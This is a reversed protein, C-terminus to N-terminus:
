RWSKGEALRRARYAHVFGMGTFLERPRSEGAEAVNKVEWAYGEPEPQHVIFLDTDQIGVITQDEDCKAFGRVPWAGTLVEYGEPLQLPPYTLAREIWDLRASSVHPLAKLAKLDLHALWHEAVRGEWLSSGDLRYEYRIAFSDVFEALRTMTHRDVNPIQTIM